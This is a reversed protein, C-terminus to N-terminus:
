IIFDMSTHREVGLGGEPTEWEGALTGEAELFEDFHWKLVLVM